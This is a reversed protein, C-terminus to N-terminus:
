FAASPDNGETGREIGIIAPSYERIKWDAHWLQAFDFPIEAEIVFLSGPPAVARIACLMTRLEDLRETYFAYPPCCFVTWRFGLPSTRKARLSSEQGPSGGIADDAVEDVVPIPPVQDSAAFGRAWVFVNSNVVHARAEVGLLEVNTRILRATALHREVLTASRAGRSLAELGMAGTGAFLDWVHTGQISPGILNFVAERTRDKMPRVRRDGSYKLKRGRFQGGVIRLRLPGSAAQEVEHHGDAHKRRGTRRARRQKTM